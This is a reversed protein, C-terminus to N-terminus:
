TAASSTPSPVAQDSMSLLAELTKAEIEMGFRAAFRVARLLRLKDETFRAVPDGIARLIRADLDARGGVFDLIEGSLPDLFMGNITFDRREADLRADGFRVTEPRRGDLYEGDSRFTAVEVEGAGEPGIV